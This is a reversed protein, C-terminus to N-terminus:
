NRDNKEIEELAKGSSSPQTEHVLKAFMRATAPMHFVVPESIFNNLVPMGDESREQRPLDNNNMMAFAPLAVLANERLKSDPYITTKIQDDRTEKQKIRATSINHIRIVSRKRVSMITIAKDVQYIPRRKYSKFKDFLIM